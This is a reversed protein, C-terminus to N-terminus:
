WVRALSFTLERKTRGVAQFSRCKYTDTNNPILTAALNVRNPLEYTENQLVSERGVYRNM